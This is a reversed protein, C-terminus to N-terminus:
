TSLQTRVAEGKEKDGSEDRAAKSYIFSADVGETDSVDDEIESEGDMGDEESNEEDSEEDDNEDDNSIDSDEENETGDTEGDDVDDSENESAPEAFTVRKTKKPINNIEPPESLDSFFM